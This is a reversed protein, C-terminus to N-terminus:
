VISRIQNIQDSNMIFIQHVIANRLIFICAFGKFFAQQLMSLLFIECTHYAKVLSINKAM